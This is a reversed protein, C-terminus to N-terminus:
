AAKERKARASPARRGSADKPEPLSADRPSRQKISSQIIRLEKDEFGMENGFVRHMHGGKVNHPIRVRILFLLMRALRLVLGGKM